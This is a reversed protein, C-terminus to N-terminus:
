SQSMKQDLQHKTLDGMGREIYADLVEHADTDFHIMSRIEVLTKDPHIDALDDIIDSTARTSYAIPTKRGPLFWHVDTSSWDSKKKRKAM